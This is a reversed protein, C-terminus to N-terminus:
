WDHSTKKDIQKQKQIQETKNDYLTQRSLMYEDILLQRRRLTPTPSFRRFLESRTDQTM